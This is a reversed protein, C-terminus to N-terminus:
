NDCFYSFFMPKNVMYINNRGSLFILDVMAFFMMFVCMYAHMTSIDNMLEDSLNCTCACLVDSMHLLNYARVLLKKFTGPCTVLPSSTSGTTGTCWRRRRAAPAEQPRAMIARVTSCCRRMVYSRKATAVAAPRVGGAGGHPLLM